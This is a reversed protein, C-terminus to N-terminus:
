PVGQEDGEIGVRRPDVRAGRLAQSLRRVAREGCSGGPCVYAGRGPAKGSRDVVASGDPLRVIRILERKPRVQRCGVCTRM